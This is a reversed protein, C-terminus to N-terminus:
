CSAACRSCIRAGSRSRRCSAACASASSRSPRRHLPLHRARLRIGEAISRINDAKDTWNVRWTVFDDPTLLRERPYHDPYKWLERVMAEDNKSVAALLIGRRKLTKLAEHIGFYLGIYSYPGSIEPPWAFPAGTEALVGPWLVGDLDVIVCKKADIASCASSRTSIRARWSGRAGYPDGGVLAALPATDPFLDHVAANESAPRQLMWGPSGFHTFSRLGDDLLGRVRGRGLAAAVDVVHVDAFEEALEALALNARRFRNRHGDLGREALGLPQM